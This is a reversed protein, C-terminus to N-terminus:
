SLTSSGDEHDLLWSKQSHYVRFISTAHDVLIHAVVAISLAYCGHLSIKMLVATLIDFRVYEVTKFLRIREFFKM